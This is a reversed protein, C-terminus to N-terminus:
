CITWTGFVLFVERLYDRKRYRSCQLREKRVKLLVADRGEGVASFTREGAHLM